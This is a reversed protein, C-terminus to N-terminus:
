EARTLQVPQPLRDSSLQINITESEYGNARVNLTGERGTLKTPIFLRANGNSDTIGTASAHDPMDIIVNAGVIEVRTGEEIVTVSYSFTDPTPTAEPLPTSTPTPTAAPFLSSRISLVDAWFGIAALLATGTAGLSIQRRTFRQIDWLTTGSEESEPSPPTDIEPPAIAEAQEPADASLTRMLRAWDGNNNHVLDVKVLMNLRAPLECEEMILPIARWTRTQVGFTTSLLDDFQQWESDLWAQSVILLTFRSQQM